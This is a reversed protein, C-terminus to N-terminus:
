GHTRPLACATTGGPMRHRHAAVQRYVLRATQKIVPMRLLRGATRYRLRPSSALYVGLAQAGSSTVATGEFLLVERDLRERHPRTIHDPLAQWPTAQIRPRAHRQLRAITAQCFGCDGDFGLTPADPSGPASPAIRV